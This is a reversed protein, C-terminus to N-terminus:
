CAVNASVINLCEQFMSIKLLYFEGIKWFVSYLLSEEKSPIEVTKVQM